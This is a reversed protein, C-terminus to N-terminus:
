NLEFSKMLSAAVPNEIKRAASMLWIEENVNKLKGLQILSPEEAMKEASIESLPLLGVGSRGLLKQISTDQTEAVVDVRIGNVKFYHDLDGRLRSHLTPLVFPQGDLSEPFGERLHTFKPSGYVVVDLKAISKAYISSQAANPPYNSVVVDIQHALLERLLEDGKGELITVACQQGLGYTKLVIERILDKPVSDLAGIQVHIRKNELRDHIAEVMESGLRFVEEAYEFAIRGSETLYLRQKQREFLPQGVSEELQKLQTSLTPQGVGLKLSAKAIGGERAIVYFYYLHHYNLWQPQDGLKVSM